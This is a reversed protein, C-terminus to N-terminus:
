MIVAKTIRSADQPWCEISAIKNSCIAAEGEDNIIHKIISDPQGNLWYTFCHTLEIGPKDPAEIASDLCAGTADRFYSYVGVGWAHHSEVRDAIKYSAYGNVGSHQWASQGPMDYPIESQYFYVQGADGNWITQYKNFHEVALGYITVNNGNVTIGNDCRNGEWTVENAAHDARWLWLNDGIVDNSNIELCCDALADSVGGTRVFLDYLIAPNDAHNAKTKANGIKVLTASKNEGADVMIGCIRLGGVDAAAIVTDGSGARLTPLGLGLVVTNENILHLPANLTYSGPLLLLHKCTTLGKNIEEASHEPKAVFFDKLPLYTAM